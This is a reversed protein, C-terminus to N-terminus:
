NVGALTKASAEDVGSLRVHVRGIIPLAVVEIHGERACERIKEILLDLLAARLEENTM